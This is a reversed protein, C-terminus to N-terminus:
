LRPRQLVVPVDGSVKRTFLPAAAARPPRQVVLPEDGVKSRENLGCRRDGHVRGNKGSEQTPWAEDKVGDISCTAMPAVTRGSRRGYLGFRAYGWNSLAPYM